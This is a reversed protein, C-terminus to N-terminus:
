TSRSGAARSSGHKIKEFQEKVIKVEQYAAVQPTMIKPRARLGGQDAGGRGGDGGDDADRLDRPPNDWAQDGRHGLMPNAEALQRAKDMMRKVRALEKEHGEKRLRDVEMQLDELRPLFEHLPPDLLRIIVPLGKMEKLISKFDAKQLPRLKDLFHKREEISSAMIM